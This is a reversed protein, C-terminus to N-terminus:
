ILFFYKKVSLTHLSHYVIIKKLKLRSFKLSLLCDGPHLIDTDSWGWGTVIHDLWVLAFTFTIKSMFDHCFLNQLWSSAVDCAFDIESPTAPLSSISHVWYLSIAKTNAKRKTHSSWLAPSYPLGRGLFHCSCNLLELELVLHRQNVLVLMIM